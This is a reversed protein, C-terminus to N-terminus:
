RSATSPLALTVLSRPLVPGLTVFILKVFKPDPNVRPPSVPPSPSSMLNLFM